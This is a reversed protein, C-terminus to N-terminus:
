VWLGGAWGVAAGLVPSSLGIPLWAGPEEEGVMVIVPVALLVGALAGTAWPALGWRLYPIVLGLALWHLFAALVARPRQRQWLMPLADLLGAVAGIVLAAAVGNM